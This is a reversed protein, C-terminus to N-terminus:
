FLWIIKSKVGKVHYISGGAIERMVGVHPLVLRDRARETGKGAEASSSAEGVDSFSDLDDGGECAAEVAESALAVPLKGVM